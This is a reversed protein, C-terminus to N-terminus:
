WSGGVSVGSCTVGLVVGLIVDVTVGLLGLLAPILKVKTDADLYGQVESFTGVHQCCKIDTSGCSSGSGGGTRALMTPTAAALTAFVTLLVLLFSANTNNLM